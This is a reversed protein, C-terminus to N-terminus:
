HHLIQQLFRKARESSTGQFFDATPANDLIQGSEMFVVRDAVHRAFAMEHTVVIGTMGERALDQIVDLVEKIMEPDLASTPEDYLMMKPQMALARAIAVRQQQGGSLEDPYFDAKEPMRVKDLLARAIATAEATAFGKVQVPALMINELATLHAFLEFNQFVMGIDRRVKFADRGCHTIDRGDFEISGSDLPELLNACRLLTSKGSGSPGIIVMTEGRQVDLSVDTLVRLNGFCKNLGRVKVMPHTISV